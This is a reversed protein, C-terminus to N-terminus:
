LQLRNQSLNISLSLSLYNDLDLRINKIADVEM